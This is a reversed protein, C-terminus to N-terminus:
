DAIIEGTFEVWGGTEGKYQWMQGNQAAANIGPCDQTLLYVRGEVLDAGAPAEESEWITYTTAGANAKEGEGDIWIHCAGKLALGDWM